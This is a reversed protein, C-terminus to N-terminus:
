LPSISLMQPPTPSHYQNRFNPRLDNLSDINKSRLLGDKTPLNPQIATTLAPPVGATRSADLIM